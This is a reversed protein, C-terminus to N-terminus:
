QGYVAEYAQKTQKATKDWSYKERVKRYANEIIYARFNEDLLVKTIGWALSNPNNPCVKVGTLNHDVIESLGGTNSVIVPSRAAMAELAVNGFPEFLSPVVSVDACEQLRRLTEGYFFGAFLVKHELHMNKVMTLLKEGMYNRGILVFKANVKELVRPIANILVELGKEYSLRGVFLVIKEEPLAFKARFSRSDEEDFNRFDQLNVGNPVVVIKDDPLDFAGKLHSAMYKSMCLVKCAEHTLLMELEHITLAHFLSRLAHFFTYGQTTDRLRPVPIALSPSEEQKLPTLYKMMSRFGSSRFCRQLVPLFL